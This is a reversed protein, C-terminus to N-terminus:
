KLETYKHIQTYIKIHKKKKINKKLKNINKYKKKINIKYIKKYKNINKYKKKINKKYKYIQINKKASFRQSHTM